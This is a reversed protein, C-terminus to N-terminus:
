NRPGKYSIFACSVSFLLFFFYEIFWKGGASAIHVASSWPVWDQCQSIEDYGFCCFYKNLYFHGGDPGASCYGGKLDGLWVSAVDIAAAFLGSALGILILLVWIQSADLFQRLYGILGSSSSHLVRLRQREKTYEFIWDIATSDDYGVRRGPGEVYWDLAGGDKVGGANHSEEQGDGLIHLSQSRNSNPIPPDQSPSTSHQRAGSGNGSIISLFRSGATQKQKRKFSVIDPGDGQLFDESFVTQDRAHQAVPDDLDPEDDVTPLHPPSRSSSSADQDSPPRNSASSSAMNM